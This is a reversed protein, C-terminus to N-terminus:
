RDGGGQLRQHPLIVEATFVYGPAQEQCGLELTGGCQEAAKRVSKLGLGHHKSDPKSTPLESATDVFVATPNSIGIYYFSGSRRATLTVRRDGPMQQVAEIANDLLGALITCLTFASIELGRLSGETVLEAGVDAALSRKEAIVADAIENGISAGGQIEAFAGGLERLYGGLEDYKGQEYLGNLVTIHNKMDHRLMRMETDAERAQEFHRAQATMYQESLRNLERFHKTQMDKVSFLLLVTVSLMLLVAPMVAEPSIDEINDSLSFQNYILNSGLYLAGTLLLMQVYSLPEREESRVFRKLLLVFGVSVLFAGTRLLDIRWNDFQTVSFLSYAATEVISILSASFIEAFLLTVLDGIHRETLLLFAAALHLVYLGVRIPTVDIVKPNGLCILLFGICPLVFSLMPLWVSRRAKRFFLDRHVILTCLSFTLGYLGQELLPPLLILPRM